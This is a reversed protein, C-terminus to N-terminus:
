KVTFFEWEKDMPLTLTGSVAPVNTVEYWDPLNTSGLVHYRVGLWINTDYPTAVWGITITRPRAAPPPAVPLLAATGRQAAPATCGASLSLLGLLLSALLTLLLHYRQRALTM